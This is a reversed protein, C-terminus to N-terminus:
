FGDEVDIVAAEEPGALVLCLGSGQWEFPRGAAYV